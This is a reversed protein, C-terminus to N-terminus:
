VLITNFGGRSISLPGGSNNGSIPAVFPHAGNSVDGVPRNEHNILKSSVENTVDIYKKVNKTTLHEFNYLMVSIRELDILVSMEHQMVKLYNNTNEMFANMKEQINSENASVNNNFIYMIKFDDSPNVMVSREEQSKDGNGAKTIYNNNGDVLVFENAVSKTLNALAVNSADLIEKFKNSITESMKRVAEPYRNDGLFNRVTTHLEGLEKTEQFQIVSMTTGKDKIDNRIDNLITLLSNQPKSADSSSLKEEETTLKAGVASTYQSLTQRINRIFDLQQSITMESYAKVETKNMALSHAYDKVFNSVYNKLQSNSEVQESTLTDLNPILNGLSTLIKSSIDYFATASIQNNTLQRTFSTAWQGMIVGQETKYDNLSNVVLSMANQIVNISEDAIREQEQTALIGNNRVDREMSLMYRSMEQTISGVGSEVQKEGTAGISQIHASRTAEIETTSEFSKDFIRVLDETMMLIMRPLTMNFFDWVIEIVVNSLIGNGSFVKSAKIFMDGFFSFLASASKKFFDKMGMMGNQINNYMNELASNITNSFLLYVGGLVAGAILIKKIVSSKKKKNSEIKKEANKIKEQISTGDKDSLSAKEKKSIANQIDSIISDAGSMFAKGINEYRKKEKASLITTIEDKKIIKDNKPKNISDSKEVNENFKSITDDMKSIKELEDFIEQPLEFNNKESESDAM